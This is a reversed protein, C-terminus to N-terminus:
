HQTNGTTHVLNSNEVILKCCIKEAYVIYMMDQSGDLTELGTLGTDGGNGCRFFSSLPNSQTICCSSNEQSKKSNEVIRKCCISCIKEAYVINMMDQSGM